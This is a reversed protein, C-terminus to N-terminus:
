AAIASDVDAAPGALVHIASGTIEGVARILACDLCTIRQGLRADAPETHECGCEPCSFFHTEMHGGYVAPTGAPQCKANINAGATEVL